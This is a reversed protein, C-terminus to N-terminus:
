MRVSDCTLALCTKHRCTCFNDENKDEYYVMNAGWNMRVEDTETVGVPANDTVCTAMPKSERRCLWSWQRCQCMLQHPERGWISIPPLPHHSERNLEHPTQITLSLGHSWVGLPYTKGGLQLVKFRYAAACSLFVNGATRFPHIVVGTHNNNCLFM